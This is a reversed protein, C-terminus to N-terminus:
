TIKLNTWRSRCPMSFNWPIKPVTYDEYEGSSILGSRFRKMLFLSATKRQPLCLCSTKLSKKWSVM